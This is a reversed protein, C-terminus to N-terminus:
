GEDAKAFEDKGIVSEVDADDSGNKGVEVVEIDSM